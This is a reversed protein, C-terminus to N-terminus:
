SEKRAHAALEPELFFDGDARRGLLASMMLSLEALCKDEAEAAGAGEGWADEGVADEGAAYTEYAEFRLPQAQYCRRGCLYFLTTPQM